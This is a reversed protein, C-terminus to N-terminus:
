AAENVNKQDHSEDHDQDVDDTPPTGQLAGPWKPGVLAHPRLAWQYGSNPNRLM